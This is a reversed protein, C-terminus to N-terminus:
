VVTPANNTLKFLDFLEFLHVRVNIGEDYAKKTEALIDEYEVYHFTDGGDEREVEVIGSVPNLEKVNFPGVQEKRRDLSLVEKEKGLYREKYVDKPHGVFFYSTAAKYPFSENELVYFAYRLVKNDKPFTIGIEGNFEENENQIARYLEPTVIVGRVLKAHDSATLRCLDQTLEMVSKEEM